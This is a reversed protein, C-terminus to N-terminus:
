LVLPIHKLSAKFSLHSPVHHLKRTRPLQWNFSRISPCMVQKQIVSYRPTTGKLIVSTIATYGNQVRRDISDTQAQRGWLFLFKEPCLYIKNAEPDRCKASLRACVWGQHLRGLQPFQLHSSSSLLSTIQGQNQVQLVLAWPPHTVAGLEM